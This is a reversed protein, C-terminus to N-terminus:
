SKPNRSLSCCGIQRGNEDRWPEGVIMVDDRGEPWLKNAVHYSVFFVTGIQREPYNIVEEYHKEILPIQIGNDLTLMDVMEVREGVRTAKKISKQHVIREGTRPDYIDLNHGSLNIIRKKM